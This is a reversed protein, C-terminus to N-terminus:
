GIRLQYEHLFWNMGNWSLKVEGRRSPDPDVSYSLFILEEEVKIAMRIM